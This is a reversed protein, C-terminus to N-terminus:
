GASEGARHAAAPAAPAALAAAPPGGAAGAAGEAGPRPSPRQRRSPRIRAIRPGGILALAGLLTVLLVKFDIM